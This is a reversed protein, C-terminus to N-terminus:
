QAIALPPREHESALAVVPQEFPLPRGVALRGHQHLPRPAHALRGEGLGERGGLVLVEDVDVERCRWLRDYVQEAVFPLVHAREQPHQLEMVCLPKRRSPRDHDEVLHLAQGDGPFVNLMEDRVTAEVVDLRPREDRDALAHLVDDDRRLLLADGHM